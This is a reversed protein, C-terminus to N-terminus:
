NKSGKKKNKKKNPNAGGNVYNLVDDLSNEDLNLKGKKSKKGSSGNNQAHAHSHGAHTHSHTHEANALKQAKAQAESMAKWQRAQSLLNRAQYTAHCKESAVNSLIDYASSAEKLCESMKSSIAYLVALRYKVIGTLYSKEGHIQITLDVLTQALKIAESAYGAEQLASVVSLFITPVSIHTNGFIESCLQAVRSYVKLSNEINGTQLELYALNILSVITEHADLGFLREALAAAKRSTTVALSHKNAEQYAQSLGSYVRQIEPHVSGYVQQYFILSETIYDIGQDKDSELTQCGAEYVNEATAARPISDKVLPYLSVDSPDFVNVRESLAAAAKKQKKDKQLASLRAGYSEKTYFYERAAWQIGFKLAIDRQMQLPSLNVVWDSPLVYRYSIKVDKEIATRVSEPTLKTFSLDLEPYLSADEVVAVPSENFATGLLVNHFHAILAPVFQTPLGVAYSRLIHKCARVIMENVTSHFVSQYLKSPAIHDVEVDFELPPFEPLDYTKGDREAEAKKTYEETIQKNREELLENFEKNYAPVKSLFEEEKEVAEAIKKELQTALEGLYRINIGIKHLQQSLYHSDIPAVSGPQAFIEIFKPILNKTIFQSLDRANADESDETQFADPTFAIQEEDIRIEPLSEGEKLPAELDIGQKKAEEAIMARAKSGWWEQVAEMRIVTQKHPYSDESSPNFHKEVFEIDLPTANFLELLYRRKDTGIIGKIESNTVLETKGDIKKKFRLSKRVEDLAKVFEPDSEITDTLNNYGYKVTTLPEGDTLEVEGTEENTTEVPETSAFLGPVPTQCIIRKGAFDVITTMLTYIGKPGVANIFKLNQLDQNSSARSAANGGKEAFSGSVDYAFSYFIGNQLFIQGEPPATPDMATMGGNIISIAGQTAQTTFDFATKAMIKERSIRNALTDTPLERYSQYEDNFDRATTDKLQIKGFDPTSSLTKTIWPASLFTAQPEDNIAYTAKNKNEFINRVEQDFAKSSKSILEFLTNFKSAGERPTPDFKTASSKNVFFGSSSGTIHLNEGENTTALIYAHHGKSKWTASVPNWASLALSRVALPTYKHPYYYDDPLTEFFQSILASVKSKEETTREPVQPEEQSEGEKKQATAEVSDTLNLNLVQSIGPNIALSESFSDKIGVISRTVALHEFVAKETYPLPKLELTIKKSGKTVVEELTVVDSLRKSQFYLGYNTYHQTSQVSRLFSTIDAINSVDFFEADFSKVDPVKFTM